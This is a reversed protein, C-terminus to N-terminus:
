LDRLLESASLALADAIAFLSDIGLNQEGREVRGYRHRHLGATGAPAEQSFGRDIRLQGLRHSWSRLLHVGSDSGM